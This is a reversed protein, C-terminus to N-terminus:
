RALYSLMEMVFSASNAAAQQYFARVDNGANRDARDSLSRIVILPVGQQWCVQAVAAGEMETALARLDKKLQAVKASSAVFVDGTVIVGQVIRPQESKGDRRIPELRVSKMANMALRLLSSDSRFYVPNDAMTAADRTPRSVFKDGEIAGYDHYAVEAGIVIDGPALKEDTGGAIGTFIVEGPKFHSIMLTTSIAANVKGIGSHAVVVKRGNLVGTTFRLKQVTHEEKHELKSLLLRVEEPFAGLIGTLRENTSSQGYSLTSGGLLLIIAIIRVYM